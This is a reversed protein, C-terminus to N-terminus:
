DRTPEKCETAPPSTQGSAPGAAFPGLDWGTERAEGTSEGAMRLTREEQLLDPERAEMGTPNQLKEEMGAQGTGVDGAPPPEGPGGGWYLHGRRGEGKCVRTKARPCRLAGMLKAM